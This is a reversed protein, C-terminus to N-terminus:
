LDFWSHWNCIPDSVVVMRGSIVGDRRLCCDTDRLSLLGFSGLAMCVSCCHHAAACSTLTCSCCSRLVGGERVALVQGLAGGRVLVLGLEEGAGLGVAKSHLGIGGESAVLLLRQCLEACTISHASCAMTWENWHSICQCLAVSMTRRHNLATPCRRRNQM